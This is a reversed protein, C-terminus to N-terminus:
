IIEGVAVLKNGEYLRFKNKSRPLEYPAEEVLFSFDPIVCLEADPEEYWVIDSSWVDDTEQDSDFQVIPCYRWGYGSIPTNRGGENAQLWRIKAKVVKKM